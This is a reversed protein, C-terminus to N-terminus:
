CVVHKLMGDFLGEFFLLFFFAGADNAGWSLVYTPMIESVDSM